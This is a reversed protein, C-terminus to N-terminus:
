VNQGHTSFVQEGLPPVFEHMSTALLKFLGNKNEDIRIYYSMKGTLHFLLTEILLEEKQQTNGTGREQRAQYKLSDNGYVDWVIDLRYGYQMNEIYPLFM